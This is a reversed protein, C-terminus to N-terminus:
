YIQVNSGNSFPNAFCFGILVIVLALVVGALFGKAFGGKNTNTNTDM